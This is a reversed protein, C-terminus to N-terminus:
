IRLRIFAQKRVRIFSLLSLACESSPKQKLVCESSPKQETV